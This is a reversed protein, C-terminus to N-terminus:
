ADSGKLSATLLLKRTKFNIQLMSLLEPELTFPIDIVLEGDGGQNGFIM